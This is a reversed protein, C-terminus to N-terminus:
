KKSPQIVFSYNYFKSPLTYEDHVLRGWSTDGGLGMQRHDINWQVTEGITIDAGHKKTVPVLGSASEAGEESIFDLEKMTFPWVSANLLRQSSVRLKVDNSALEM